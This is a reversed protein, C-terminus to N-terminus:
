SANASTQQEELWERFSQKSKNGTEHVSVLKAHVYPAAAKAAEIRRDYWGILKALMAAKDGEVALGTKIEEPCEERYINTLFQLPTLGTEEVAKIQEETKKNKGGKQRGGRREGPAAGRKSDKVVKTVM